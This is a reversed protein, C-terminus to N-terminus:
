RPGTSPDRTEDRSGTQPPPGLGRRRWAQNLDSADYYGLALAAVAREMELYTIRRGGDVLALHNPRDTVVGALTANVHAPRRAYCSILRGQHLEKRQTYM